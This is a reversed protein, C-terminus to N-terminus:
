KENKEYNQIEYNQPGQTPIDSVTLRSPTIWLIPEIDLLISPSAVFIFHCPTEQRLPSKETFIRTMIRALDQTEM